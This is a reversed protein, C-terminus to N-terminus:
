LLNMEVTNNDHTSQQAASFFNVQETIQEVNNMLVSASSDDIGSSTLKIIGFLHEVFPGIEDRGLRNIDLKGAAKLKQDLVTIFEVLTNPTTGLRASFQKAFEKGIQTRQRKHRFYLGGGM